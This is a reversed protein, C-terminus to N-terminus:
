CDVPPVWVTAPQGAPVGLFTAVAVAESQGSANTAIHVNGDGPDLFAEGAAYTRAVCDSANTVTVAGQVVNVIVPGPHTHWGSTGGPQWTVEATLTNSAGQPLNTVLTPGRDYKVRFTATVDDTFTAPGALLSVSFGAPQDPEGTAEATGEAALTVALALALALALATFPVALRRPTQTHM